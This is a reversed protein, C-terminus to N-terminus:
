ASSDLLRFYIRGAFSVYAAGPRNSAIRSMVSAAAPLAGRTYGPEVRVVGLLNRLRLTRM